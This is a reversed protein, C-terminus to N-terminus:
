NILQGQQQQLQGILNSATLLLDLHEMFQIQVSKPPWAM